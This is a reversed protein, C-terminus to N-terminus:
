SILPGSRHSSRRRRWPARLCNPRPPELAMAKLVVAVPGKREVGRKVSAIAFHYPFSGRTV